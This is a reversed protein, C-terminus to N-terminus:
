SWAVARPLRGAREGDQMSRQAFRPQQNVTVRDRQAAITIQPHVDLLELTQQRLTAGVPMGAILDASAAQLRQGLSHGQVALWKRVPKM